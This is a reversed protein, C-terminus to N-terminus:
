QLRSLNDMFDTLDIASDSQITKRNGIILKDALIEIIFDKVVLKKICTRFSQTLLLRAKVEDDTVVYFAKSFEADDTFDMEMPNILEHIKDLLSEPKILIHGFDYKLKIVGWTQYEYTLGYSYKRAYSYSYGVQIFILDFSQLSNNICIAPGTDIKRNRFIELPAFDYPFNTDYSVDFKKELSSFITKITDIESAQLDLTSFPMSTMIITPLM